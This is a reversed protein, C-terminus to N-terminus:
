SHLGRQGSRGVPPANRRSGGKIPPKRLPRVRRSSPFVTRYRTWPIERIPKLKCCIIAARICLLEVLPRQAYLADGTFLRLMPYAALLEELHRRLVMPENTKEAGTSWQGIVTQLDHVFVHLMHLPSGNDDRGQKATKGDVAVVGSTSAETVCARLWANWATQFEAVRCQALTRSITTACPPQDRDFGLAERLQDWHVTAWRVLVEMERIRALMGLLMLVVMGAFPHRVGRRCRPDELRSFAQLLSQSPLM